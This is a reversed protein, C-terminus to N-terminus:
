PTAGKFRDAFGRFRRLWLDGDPGTPEIESGEHLENFSTLIVWDALQAVQWSAALFQGGDRDFHTGAFRIHTDDYGPMVTAVALKDLLRARQRTLRLQEAYDAPSIFSVYSHLGGLVDLWPAQMRDGIALVPLGDLAKRYGDADVKDFIRTYLFVVKQGNVALWGPMQMENKLLSEIQRRLDQWNDAAELYAAVTLGQAAAQRCLGQLIADQRADRQWMSMVLTDIGAQKAWAVHQQQVKPDLSDYMGLKPPLNVGKHPAQPDWHQWKKAPGDPTGWWGYYFALVRKGWDTRPLPAAWQEPRIALIRPDGALWSQAPGDITGLKKAGSAVAVRLPGNDGHRAVIQVPEGTLTVAFTLRAQVPSRDRVPKALSILSNAYVPTALEVPGDVRIQKDTNVAVLGRLEIKAWDATTAIDIQLPFVAQQAAAPVAACALVAAVFLYRLM